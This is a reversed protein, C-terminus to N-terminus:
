AAESSQRQLEAIFSRVRRETRPLAEGGNRLREVFKGDNVARRGFTTAAMGSSTLAAEVAALLPSHDESM